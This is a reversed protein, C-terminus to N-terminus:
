PPHSSPDPTTQQYPLRCGYWEISIRDSQFTILGCSHMKETPDHIKRFDTELFRPFVSRNEARHCKKKMLTKFHHVKGSVYSFGRLLYYFKLKNCVNLVDGCMQVYMNENSLFPIFFPVQSQSTTYLLVRFNYLIYLSLYM